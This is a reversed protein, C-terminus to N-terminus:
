RTFRRGGRRPKNLKELESKMAGQLEVQKKNYEALKEDASVTPAFNGIQSAIAASTFQLSETFSEPREGLFDKTQQKKFEDFDSRSLKGKQVLKAAQM